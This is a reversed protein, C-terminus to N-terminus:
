MNECGGQVFRLNLFIERIDRVSKQFFDMGLFNQGNNQSTLDISEVLALM